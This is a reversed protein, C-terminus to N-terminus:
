KSAKWTKSPHREWVMDADNKEETDKRNDTRKVKTNTSEEKEAKSLRKRMKELYGEYQEMEAIMYKSGVRLTDYWHWFYAGMDSLNVRLDRDNTKKNKISGESAQNNAPVSMNNAKEIVSVFQRVHLGIQSLHHKKPYKVADPSNMM